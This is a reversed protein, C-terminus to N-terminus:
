FEEEVPTQAIGDGKEELNVNDEPYVDAKLQSQGDIEPQSSKLQSNSVDMNMLKSLDKVEEPNIDASQRLANQSDMEDEDNHAETIENEKEVPLEIDELGENGEIYPYMPKYRRERIPTEPRESEVESQVEEELGEDKLLDEGNDLDQEEEAEAEQYSEEPINDDPQTQKYRKLIKKKTILIMGDKTRRREIIEEKKKRQEEDLQKIQSM